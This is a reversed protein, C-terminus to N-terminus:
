FVIKAKGKKKTVGVLQQPVSGKKSKKKKKGTKNSSTGAVLIFEKDKRKNNMANQATVLMNLLEFLSCSLKNMHFNVIFGSFSDPLSWLVLDVDMQFELKDLQQILRIMKQMYAAVEIGEQMRARFLEKLIEYQATRSNNGYLKRLNKLIERSSKMNEHQKQLENSMSALMYCRVKMDDVSWQDYADHQDSTADGGPLEIEQTELIYGLAEM